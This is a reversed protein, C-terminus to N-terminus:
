PGFRSVRGFSPEDPVMTSDGFCRQIRGSWAARRLVCAMRRSPEDRFEGPRRRRLQESIATARFYPQFLNPLDDDAVGPGYDRVVVEVHQGAARARLEIPGEAPGYKQANTLLNWIVQDVTSPTSEV